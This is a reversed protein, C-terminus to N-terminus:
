FNLSNLYLLSEKLAIEPHDVRDQEVYFHKVGNKKASSIIGPLDIVGEGASRMYPFLEMWQDPNGGDGSFHVIKSMDKIHMLRFRNPHGEFYSIPDAGGAITWFIDMEFFVLKPDTRQLILDMPIVGNVEKLGYGHNHYAFKLGQKKANEGIVNFEDAIRKYDDITVREEEPIAPLVVYEFGHDHGAQGLESMRTRLSELDSHAATIKIDNAKLIAKVEKSTKGFFGSGSFGLMPTISKWFSIYSPASFAYPGFLEIEKYGMQALLAIGGEFDNELLNPLSFLQVGYSQTKMKNSFLQCSTFLTATTALATNQIFKRRKM